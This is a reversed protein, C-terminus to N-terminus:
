YPVEIFNVQRKNKTSNQYGLVKTNLTDIKSFYDSLGTNLTYKKSNVKKNAMWVSVSDVPMFDTKLEIKLSDLLVKPFVKMSLFANNGHSVFYLIEKMSQEDINNVESINVFTGKIKYTEVNERADYQSDLYEYPTQTSIREVKQKFLRDAEHDFIYLGFPIKDDVSYTPTWDIPKPQGKDVLLTIGFILVLIAIYIKVKNDM